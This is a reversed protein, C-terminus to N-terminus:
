VCPCKEIGEGRPSFPCSLSCLPRRWEIFAFASNRISRPCSPSGAPRHSFYGPQSFPAPPVREGGPTPTWGLRGDLQVRRFGLFSCLLIWISSPQFKSLLFEGWVKLFDVELWKLIKKRHKPGFFYEALGASPQGVQSIGRHGDDTRQRPPPPRHDNTM